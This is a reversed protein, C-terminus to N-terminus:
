NVVPLKIEVLLGQETNKAFVEGNHAEVAQETIALGLGIGGSKRTRSESVRYFPRFIEKLDGDPIGDGFDQISITANKGAKALSVVVKNKTYRVANRLVNEIASRLLRENGIIKCDEKIQVEVSKQKASAEFEADTVVSEFIKALNLEKKEITESKTELKSLILINSIMENLRQSETEIRNLLSLNEPTKRALELAVNMRALPSRLEHSIDRTLREQSTILSEIREAMEDFDRSLQGIEDRRKTAIRVKLDGEALQKTALSLNKIPSTLYRALAYCVLGTMFILALIRIIRTQWDPGFPIPMRPREWQAVLVAFGGNKLPTKRSFYDGEDGGSEFVAVESSMAKKVLEDANISLKKNAILKGNQFYAVGIIRRSDALRNLFHNLGSEGEIEFIQTATEAHANMIDGFRNQWQVAFPESQTTWTVFFLGGVILAIALWFWLFIKLFLSM